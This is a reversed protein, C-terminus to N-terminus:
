SCNKDIESGLQDLISLADDFDYNDVYEMLRALLPEQATGDLLPKLADIPQEVDVDDNELLARLQVLLEQVRNVGPNEGPTATAKSEDLNGLGSILPNLQRQLQLLLTQLAEGPGGEGNNFQQEVQAAAQQVAAAGISGAVGKLTHAERQATAYDQSDIASQIRAVADAQSSRFKKLIKLYLQTNGGVRGLGDKSDIGDIAPVAEVPANGPTVRSASLGRRQEPIDIWRGLVEFLEKINVPKAVHDNMGAARAKDRDGAMANATMAIVPLDRFRADKRLTRAATYGDMVPMQIDMLVADFANGRADGKRAMDVGQQGNNALTVLVGASELIESAVQQNIENDEVLLVRAGTVHEALEPGQQHTQAVSKGFANLIGDLLMSQSVPKVLVGGLEVDGAQQQLQERDFATVMLVAPIHKITQSSQIRRTAEVGDTHPMKWDMLVLDFPAEPPTKELLELAAGAGDALEVRYGFSDLYRKMILRATPNDDVVLVKLGQIDTDLDRRTRISDIDGRGFRATFWFTSGVGPESDVGIEGGMLGALQRSIALGLGTGGYQRTISTDAQSFSQFLRGCQEENMGIGTDRVEFRMLICQADSDVEEIRLTIDGQETFKVANNMLNIIIQGLRLPDGRLASPLDVDFDFILELAKEGAKLGIVNALNELVDRHLDFDISEVDLKGAEIKSFDLIDNIIGLLNNASGSIKNLYDRQKLSLETDLALHSLGIVANMPTRIEHSMNALFDSKALTAEEAKQTQEELEATAQKVRESIVQNRRLLMAIFIVLALSGSIGALLIFRALEVPPGGAFAKSIGWEIELDASASVTRDRVRHVERAIDMGWVPQLGEDLFKGDLQLHMGPPVQVDYLGQILATYDVLGVVIADGLSNQIMLAVLSFESGDSEHPPGLILEGFRAVAEDVPTQLWDQDSLIMDAQLLGYPNTTYTVQWNDDATRQLYAAGDLFFATARAELAEYANLFEAESLEESNEALVALGSVPAYSEELWNLLTGTLWQGARDAQAVWSRRADERFTESLLWSSGIGALLLALLLLWRLSQRVPMM